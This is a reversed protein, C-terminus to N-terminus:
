GGVSIAPAGCGNWTLTISGNGATTPKVVGTLVGATVHESTSCTPDIALATPTSLTLAFSRTANLIATTGRITFTGAPLPTNGVIMTAPGAVAFSDAWTHSYATHATTPGNVRTLLSVATNVQELLQGPVPETVTVTGTYNTRQSSSPTTITSEFETLTTSLAGDFVTPTPDSLVILGGYALSTTDGLLTTCASGAYVLSDLDAIFDMDEDTVAASHTACTPLAPALGASDGMVTLTNIATAVSIEIGQGFAAQEAATLSGGPFPPTPATAGKHCGATLLLASLLFFPRRV